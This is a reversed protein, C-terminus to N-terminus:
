GQGRRDGRFRCQRANQAEPCEAAINQVESSGYCDYVKCGFVREIVERQPRYLKEATTFAGKIGGITEGQSDLFAAFRAITSAYGLIVRPRNPRFARAWDAM